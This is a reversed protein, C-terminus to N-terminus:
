LEGSMVSMGFPTTRLIASRASGENYSMFPATGGREMIERQAQGNRGMLDSFRMDAPDFYGGVADDIASHARIWQRDLTLARGAAAERQAQSEADSNVFEDANDVFQSRLPLERAGELWQPVGQRQSGLGSAARRANQVFSSVSPEGFFDINNRIADTLLGGQGAYSEFNMRRVSDSVLEQSINRNQEYQDALTRYSEINTYDVDGGPPIPFNPDGINCINTYGTIFIAFDFQIVAPQMAQEQARAQLMYGEVIIDDYILYLRAGREVLKTGRFYRDYNEWFEARWQFDATNLLQGQVSLMRPSEGFFFIYPDGFTEVIQSKERREEVISQILFNTYTTTYRRGEREVLTEGAADIVPVFEGNAGLVRIVAYTNPKAQIGRLPRRVPFQRGNERISQALAQRRQVFPDSRAEVFVPM